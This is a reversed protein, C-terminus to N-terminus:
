AEEPTESKPSYGSCRLVPLRPYKAFSLDTKSLECRYFTSARASKIAFSHRCDFCLGVSVRLRNDASEIVKDPYHM